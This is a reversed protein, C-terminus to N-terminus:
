QSGGNAYLFSLDDYERQEFDSEKKKGRIKFNKEENEVDLLTKIGKKNWDNLIGQVYRGTKKNNISAIKIAKIILDKSMDKLYDFLLEATAPTLLGINEEYCKTIEAVVVEEENKDNKDNKNTTIQKNDTQQEITEGHTIESTIKKAKTKIIM